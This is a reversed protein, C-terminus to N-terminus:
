RQWKREEKVDINSKFFKYAEEGLLGMQFSVQISSEIDRIRLFSLKGMKRLFVIRGAIKINETGDPLERAEKISNTVEYKDPYPNCYERISDLKGRRVLEQESRVINEM